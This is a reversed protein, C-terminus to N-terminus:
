SHQYTLSHHWHKGLACTIIDIYLFARPHQYIKVRPNCVNRLVTDRKVVYYCIAQEAKRKTCASNKLTKDTLIKM